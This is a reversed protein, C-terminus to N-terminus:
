CGAAVLQPQEIAAGTLVLHGGTHFLDDGVDVIGVLHQALQAVCLEIGDALEDAEQGRLHLAVDPEELAARALVDIYRRSRGIVFRGGIVDDGLSGRQGIGMPLVRAVLNGALFQEHALPAVVTEGNGDDAGAVGITLTAHGDADMSQFTGPLHQLAHHLALGDDDIAVAGREPREGPVFVKGTAEDAQEAIWLCESFGELNHAVFLQRPILDVVAHGIGESHLGFEVVDSGVEEHGGRGLGPVKLAVKDSVLTYGDDEVAALQLAGHRAETGGSGEMFAHAAAHSMDEGVWFELRFIRLEIRPAIADDSCLFFGLGELYDHEGGFGNVPLQM